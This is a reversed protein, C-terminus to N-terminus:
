LFFICDLFPEEGGKQIRCMKKKHLIHYGTATLMGARSRPVELASKAIATSPVTHDRLEMWMTHGEKM